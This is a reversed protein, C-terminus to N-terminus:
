TVVSSGSQTTTSGRSPSSHPGNMAANVASNARRQGGPSAPVRTTTGPSNVSASRYPASAAASAWATACSVGGTSSSARGRAMKANIVRMSSSSGNVMLVKPGLNGSYLIMAPRFTKPRRSTSLLGHRRHTIRYDGRLHEDDLIVRVDNVQDPRVQHHPPEVRHHRRPRPHQRQQLRLLRVHHQKVQHQRLRVPELQAPLDPLPRRHRDDHHRGPAPLP